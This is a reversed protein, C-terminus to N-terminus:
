RVNQDGYGIYLDSVDWSWNSWDFDDKRPLRNFLYTFHTVRKYVIWSPSGMPTTTEKEIGESVSVNSVDKSVVKTPLHCTVDPSLEKEKKLGTSRKKTELRLEKKDRTQVRHGFPSIGLKQDRRERNTVIKFKSSNLLLTLRPLM